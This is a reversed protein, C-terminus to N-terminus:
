NKEEKPLNKILAVRKAAGLERLGEWEVLRLNGDMRGCGARFVANGLESLDKARVISEEIERLM